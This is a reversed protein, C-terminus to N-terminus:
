KDPVPPLTLDSDEEIRLWLDDAAFGTAADGLLAAWGTKQDATLADEMQKMIDKRFAFLDAKRKADDENGLNDFYRDAEGRQREALDAVKKKQADTLQLLKEVKPDSFATVGRIRWDLQGLRKRQPATLSKAASDGLLKDIGKKHEKELKDFADEPANPQRSLVDIKKEYEEELDALGDLIVIRQEATMKLEKQVKRHQLLKVASPSASDDAKPAPPVPAAFLASTFMVAFLSLPIARRLM